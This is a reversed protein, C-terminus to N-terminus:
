KRYQSHFKATIVARMEKKIEAISKKSTKSYNPVSPKTVVIGPNSNELTTILQQLKTQDCLQELLKQILLNQSMM